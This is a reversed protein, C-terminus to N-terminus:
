RAVVDNEGKIELTKGPSSQNLRVGASGWGDKGVLEFVVALYHGPPVNEVLAHGGENLRLLCFSKEMDANIFYVRVPRESLNRVYIQHREVQQGM